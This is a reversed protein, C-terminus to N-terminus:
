CCWPCPCDTCIVRPKSTVVPDDKRWDPDALHSKREHYRKVGWHSIAHAVLLIVVRLGLYGAEFLTIFSMGMALGLHGGIASFLHPVQYAEKRVLRRVNIDNLYM